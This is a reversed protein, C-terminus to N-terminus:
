PEPSGNWHLNGNVGPRSVRADVEEYFDKDSKTSIKTQREYRWSRQKRLHFFSSSAKSLRDKLSSNLNLLPKPVEVNSIKRESRKDLLFRSIRFWSRV